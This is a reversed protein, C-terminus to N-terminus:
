IQIQTPRSTVLRHLYRILMLVVTLESCISLLSYSPLDNPCEGSFGTSRPLPLPVLSACLSSFSVYTNIYEETPFDKPNCGINKQDPNQYVRIYDIYMHVPFPIHELDVDGFNFSMGLNAILYMPEQPVPRASIEVASDAAMGAVNLTWSIKNDSVWTIYQLLVDTDVNTM